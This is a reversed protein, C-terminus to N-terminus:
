LPLSFGFGLKVGNRDSPKYISLKLAGQSTFPMSLPILDLTIDMGYSWIRRNNGANPQVLLDRMKCFAMDFGFNLRVRSVYLVSPIGGDPYWVPLQYDVAFASFSEPRNEYYDAGRPFLDKSTFRYVGRGVAKQGTGRLMLSHQPAIGPLYLRGYLSVFNGYISELPNGAGTVRVTYGFRPLFDRYALRVNDSYQLSFSLKDFGNKFSLDSTVTVPIDNIYEVGGAIRRGNNHEWGVQPTLIRVHHGSSLRVPLYALAEFGAYDSFRHGKDFEKTGAPRYDIQNRSSWEATLELKPAWGYYKFMGRVLHDSDVYKYGLEAFATNLLNQSILTAGVGFNFESEGVLEYPEFYFPAWSHVQVLGLGRRYRRSGYSTTDAVMVEDINLTDWKRRPPNVTNQPLESWPVEKRVAETDQSSLLYGDKTFTTQVITGNGPAPSFSGYRSHSLVYEKGTALDLVHSEDKGTAISNYYLKGADARLNAITCRNPRTVVKVDDTKSVSGIWMGADSLGIFYFRGADYALGHVSITDPIAAQWGGYRISYSGDYSYEVVAYGGEDMAVPFTAKREGKVVGKRGAAVDYYCLQSNLRQEWFTSRRYETWYIKGGSVTLPSNVDGTWALVKEEGSGPDVSVIRNTRQLDEKFAVVSGDPMYVPSNYTTYSKVPTGIIAASNEVPPQSRWFEWLDGFAERYLKSPNTKYYKKLGFHNTFIVYPNRSAYRAVKNWINHGYKTDAYSVIQYGLEYQSPMPHRFSGCFYRDESFEMGELCFMRYDITFSPQLGRGYASMQTEALVADGELFWYPLLGAGIMSGQEGVVWSLVRILGRNLNNYQVSHRYEHVALQKLWPMAASHAPPTVIFEMRKPAMLVLGNSSFNQTQMVLPLKMPGYTFGNGVYSRVTDMYNILRSAHKEYNVPFVFSGGPTKIRDWKISAPNQGWDYYQGSVYNASAAVLIAVCMIHKLVIKKM